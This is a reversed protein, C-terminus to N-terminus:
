QWILSSNGWKSLAILGRIFYGQNELQTYPGGRALQAAKMKAIFDDIASIYASNISYEMGDRSLAGEESM